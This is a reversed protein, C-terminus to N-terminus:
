SIVTLIAITKFYAYEFLYLGSSLFIFIQGYLFTITIQNAVYSSLQLYTVFVEAVDTTLFYSLNNNSSKVTSLGMFIYLLTEKFFYCNVMIFCWTICSFVGRYKIELLYKYIM